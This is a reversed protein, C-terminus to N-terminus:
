VAFVDIAATVATQVTADDAAAITSFSAAKNQALVAWLMRQMVDAPNVYVAKAWAMRAAHNATGASETRVVEAAIVCAVRVKQRLTENESLTLLETYTAM